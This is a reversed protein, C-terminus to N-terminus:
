LNDLTPLKVGRSHLLAFAHAKRLMLAEAEHRLDDLLSQGESTLENQKLRDLLLDYLAVKDANMTSRGIQWLTEDSLASMAELEHKLDAPLDDEVIPPLTHLLAQNVLAEVSQKREDAQHKLRSYLDSSLSIQYAM